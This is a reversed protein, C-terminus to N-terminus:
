QCHGTEVTSEGLGGPSGIPCEQGSRWDTERLFESKGSCIYESVSFCNVFNTEYLHGLTKRNFGARGRGRATQRDLAEAARVARIHEAVNAAIKDQKSIRLRSFFGMPKRNRHLEDKRKINNTQSGGGSGSTPYPSSSSYYPNSITSIDTPRKVRIQM